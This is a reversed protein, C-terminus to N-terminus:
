HTAPTPITGDRLTSSSLGRAEAHTRFQQRDLLEWELSAFFSGCLVNDYRNALSGM